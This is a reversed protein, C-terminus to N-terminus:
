TYQTAIHQTKRTTHLICLAIFKFHRVHAPILDPVLRIMREPITDSLIRTKIVHVAVIDFRLILAQYLCRAIIRHRKHARDRPSIEEPHLEVRFFALRCPEFQQLIKYM